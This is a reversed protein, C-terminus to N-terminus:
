TICNPPLGHCDGCENLDDAGLPEGCKECKFDESNWDDNDM